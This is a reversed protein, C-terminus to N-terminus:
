QGWDGNFSGNYWMGGLFKGNEFIGNYWLGSYWNTNSFKSVVRLKLDVGFQSYVAFTGYSSLDFLLLLTTTQSVEDITVFAIKYKRPQSLQGLKLFSSTSTGDDVIWIEDGINFRFVGNL